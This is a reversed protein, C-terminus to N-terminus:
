VRPRTNIGKGGKGEARVSVNIKEPLVALYVLLCFLRLPPPTPCCCCCCHLFSRLVVYPTTCCSSCRVLSPTLCFSVLPIPPPPSPSPSFFAFLCHFRDLIPQGRKRAIHPPPPTPSLSLSLSLPTLEAFSLSWSRCYAPNHQRKRERQMALLQSLVRRLPSEELGVSPPTHIHTNYTSQPHAHSKTTQLPHAPSCLRHPTSLSPPLPPPPPPQQQRRQQEDTQTHVKRTLTIM